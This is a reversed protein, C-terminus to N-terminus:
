IVKTHTLRGNLASMVLFSLVSLCGRENTGGKWSLRGQTSLGTAADLVHLIACRAAVCLHVDFKRCWFQLTRVFEEVDFEAKLSLAMVKRM